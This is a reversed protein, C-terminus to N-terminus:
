PAPARRWRERPTRSQAPARSPAPYRPNCRTPRHTTRPASEGAPTFLVKKKKRKKDFSTPPFHALSCRSLSHRRHRHRHHNFFLLLSVHVRHVVFDKRFSRSFFFPLSLSLSVCLHPSTSSLALLSSARPQKRQVRRHDPKKKKKRTSLLSARSLSARATPNRADNTQRAARGVDSSVEDM